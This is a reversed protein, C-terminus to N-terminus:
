ADRNLRSAKYLLPTNGIIHWNGYFYISLISYRTFTFLFAQYTCHLQRIQIHYNKHSERLILNNMMLVKNVESLNVTEKRQTNHIVLIHFHKAHSFNVSARTKYQSIVLFYCCYMSLSVQSKHQATFIFDLFALLQSFGTDCVIIIILNFITKLM